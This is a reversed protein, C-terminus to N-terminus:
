SLAKPKYSYITM